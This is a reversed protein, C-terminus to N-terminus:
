EQLHARWHIGTELMKKYATRKKPESQFSPYDVAKDVARLAEEIDYNVRRISVQWKGAQDGEEPAQALAWSPRPDGDLPFGAAGTNCILKEKGKYELRRTFPVHTHGCFVAQLSQADMWELLPQLAEDSDAASLGGGHFCVEQYKAALGPLYHREPFLRDLPSDHALIAQPLYQYAPAAQVWALQSPSLQAAFWRVLSILDAYFQEDRKPFDDLDPTFTYFEANGQICSVSGWAQLLDVCEAPRMGNIIDGLVFIRECGMKQVDQLVARLAAANGHIDSLFADM